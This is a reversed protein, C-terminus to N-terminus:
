SLGFSSGRFSSHDSSCSDMGWEVFMGLVGERVDDSTDVLMRSMSLPVADVSLGTCLATSLILSPCVTPVIELASLAGTKCSRGLMTIVSM